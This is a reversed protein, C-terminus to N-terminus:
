EATEWWGKTRAHRAQGSCLLSIAVVRADNVKPLFSALYLSLSSYFALSFREGNMSGNRVSDLKKREASFIFRIAELSVQEATTPCYYIFNTNYVSNVGTELTWRYIQHNCKILETLLPTVFENKLSKKKTSLCLTRLVRVHFSTTMLCQSYSCKFRSEKTVLRFM